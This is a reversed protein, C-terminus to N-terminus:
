LTIFEMSRPLNSLNLGAYFLQETLRVTTCQCPAVVTSEKLIMRVRGHNLHMQAVYHSLLESDVAENPAMLEKTDRPLILRSQSPATRPRDDLGLVRSASSAAELLLSDEEDMEPLRFQRKFIPRFARPRGPSPEQLRSEHIM